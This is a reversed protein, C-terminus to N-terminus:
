SIDKTINYSILVRAPAPYLVTAIMGLLMMHPENRTSIRDIVTEEIKESLFADNRIKTPYQFEINKKLQEVEIEEIIHISTSSIAHSASLITKM